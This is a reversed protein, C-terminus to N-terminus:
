VTDPLDDYAVGTAEAAERWTIGGLFHHFLDQRERERFHPLGSAIIAEMNAPLRQEAIVLCAFPVGDADERASELNRTLQNRFPYWDTSPSLVDTRKGEVYVRLRKAPLFCDVATRGEFAWWQRFSGAAAHAALKALAKQIAEQRDVRRLDTIRKVGEGSLDRVGMLKERWLQVDPSFRAKGNKPWRMKEPHEILWRLFEEPPNLRRENDLDVPGLPGPNTLLDERAFLKRNPAVALIKPLWSLGRPDRKILIRFFPRVRTLSSNRSGM